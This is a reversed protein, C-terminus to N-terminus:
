LYFCQGLRIFFIQGYRKSSDVQFEKIIVEIWQGPNIGQIRDITDSNRPILIIYPIKTCLLGSQNVSEVKCIVREGIAPRCVLCNFKVDFLFEGTQDSNGRYGPSRTLLNVSNPKVYGDQTYIQGEYCKKLASTIAPNIKEVSTILRCPVGVTNRLVVPQFTLEM